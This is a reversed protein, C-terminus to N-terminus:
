LCKKLEELHHIMPCDLNEVKEQHHNYWIAPIGSNIAGRVDTDLDDGIMLAHQPLCNIQKL